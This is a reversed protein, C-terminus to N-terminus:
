QREKGTRSSATPEPSIQGDRRGVENTVVPDATELGNLVVDVLGQAGKFYQVRRRGIHEVIGAPELEADDAPAFVRVVFTRMPVM